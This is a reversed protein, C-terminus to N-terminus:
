IRIGGVTETARVQVPPLYPANFMEADRRRRELEHDDVVFDVLRFISVYVKPIEILATVSSTRHIRVASRLFECRQSKGNRFIECRILSEHNSMIYGVVHVTEGTGLEGMNYFELAEAISNSALEAM